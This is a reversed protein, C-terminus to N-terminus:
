SILFSMAPQRAATKTPRLQEIVEEARTWRDEISALDRADLSTEAIFRAFDDLHRRSPVEPRTGILYQEMIQNIFAHANSQREPWEKRALANTLTARLDEPRDVEYTARRGWWASRGLLLLPKEYFAVEFQLTTFQAVVVDALDMLAHVNVDTVVKVGQVKAIAYPDTDLPHPKFVLTAKPDKELIAWLNLLADNTSGFAPLHHRLHNSPRPLMASAEFGGGFFVVVKKDGLGLSQRLTKGGEGFDPQDYKKPKNRLYYDRIRNYAGEDRANATPIQAMWNMRMDSWAQLGMSDVAMTDPLLGREFAQIPIGATRAQSAVIMALPSSSDWTLVYGPQLAELVSAIFKKCAFLGRLGDGAPFRGGGRVRDIELLKFDAATVTANDEIANPFHTAYDKLLFPIPITAFPLPEEPMASTLLVLRSGNAELQQDLTIWMQRNAENMMLYNTALCLKRTV